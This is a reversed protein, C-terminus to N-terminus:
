ATPDFGFQYEDVEDSAGGALAAGGLSFGNGAEALTVLNGIPGPVKAYIKFTNSDTRKAWVLKSLVSHANICAVVNDAYAADTGGILFQSETAVAAKAALATGAITLTDTDAVAATHDCDVTQTAVEAAIAARVYARKVGGDIANLDNMVARLVRRKDKLDLRNRLDAILDDRYQVTFVYHPATM